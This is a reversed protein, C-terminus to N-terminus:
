ENRLIKGGLNSLLVLSVMIGAWVLIRVSISSPYYRLTTKTLYNQGESDFNEAGWYRPSGDEGFPEMGNVFLSDRLPYVLEELFTSQTQDKIATFAFEPPYNLKIPEFPFLNKSIFSLKYFNVVFSRYNNSFYAKVNPIETTDGYLTSKSSNPLAPFDDISNAGPLILYVLLCVGFGWLFINKILKM